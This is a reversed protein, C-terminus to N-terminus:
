ADLVLNSKPRCVCTLCSGAEPSVDKSLYEVEGEKIAISCSGCSGACCGSDIRVGHERAFDLLNVMGPEWPIVKGSKAFSVSLTSTSAATSKKMSVTDSTKKITAPGFAEFHIKSEPVGWDKLGNFLTSMFGGNGCMYYDYNNSPLVSKLVDVNLRGETKYDRGQIDDRGPKTYCVHVRLNPTSEALRDVEAKLMYDSRNRCVFFFWVERKSGTAAIEKAMSLVPTIGVGASLLVVPMQRDMELYFHGAPAKVNLIDSEKVLDVFYSSGVGPPLDPRDSPAKEKKITVRYFDRDSPASSLSYCRVVAKDRGPIDLSFTVYQGPRFPPIAKGDHPKLEFSCVDDCERVKRFVRFKRWGNWSSKEQEAVEWRSRACKVEYELRERELHFQKRQRASRILTQYLSAGTGAAVAAIIVNGVISGIEGVNAFLSIPLLTQM